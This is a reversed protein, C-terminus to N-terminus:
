HVIQYIVLEGNSSEIREVESMRITAGYDSCLNSLWTNDRDPRSVYFVNDAREFTSSLNSIGINNLREEFVPSKTVWYNLTIGNPATEGTKQYFVHNQYNSVSIHFSYINEPHQKCYEQLINQEDNYKSWTDVTEDVLLKNASYAKISCFALILCTFIGLFLGAYGKEKSVFYADKELLLGGLIVALAIFYMGQSVRYPYRGLYIFLTAFALVYAGSLVPFLSRVIGTKSEKWNSLVIYLITSLAVVCVIMGIPQKKAEALERKVLYLFASKDALVKGNNLTKSVTAISQLTETDFSKILALGYWMSAVEAESVGLNDYLSKYDEYPPEGAYDFIDTRARNFSLYDKWEPSSYAAKEVALSVVAGLLLFIVPRLFNDNWLTAIKQKGVVISKKDTKGYFWRYLGILVVFPMSMYFVQRRLWLCLLLSAAIVTDEFIKEGRTMGRATVLFFVGLAAWVAADLTYENMVYGYMNVVFFAITFAALSICKAWIKKVNESIRYSFFFFAVPYTLGMCLDYWPVSPGIRYLGALASGLIYMIYILHGDNKGTYVGSVLDRMVLQDNSFFTVPLLRLLLFVYGLSFAVAFILNIYIHRKENHYMM